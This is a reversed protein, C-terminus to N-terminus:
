NVKLPLLTFTGNVGDLTITHQNYRFPENPNYYCDIREKEAVYQPRGVIDFALLLLKINFYSRGVRIVSRVKAREKLGDVYLGEIETDRTVKLFALEKMSDELNIGPYDLSITNENLRLIGHSFVIFNGSKYTQDSTKAM